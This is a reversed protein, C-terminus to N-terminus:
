DSKRVITPNDSRWDSLTLSAEAMASLGDISQGNPQTLDLLMWRHGAWMIRLTGTELDPHRLRIITGRELTNM